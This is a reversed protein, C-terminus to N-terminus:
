MLTGQCSDMGIGKRVFNHNSIYPIQNEKLWEELQDVQSTVYRKSPLVRDQKEREENAPRMQKEFSDEDVGTM